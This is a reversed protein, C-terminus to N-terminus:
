LESKVRLRPVEMHQLFPGLFVFSLYNFLYIFLYIFLYFPGKQSLLGNVNPCATVDKWPCFYLLLLQALAEATCHNDGCRGPHRHPM